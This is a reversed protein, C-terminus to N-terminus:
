KLDGGYESNLKKIIRKRGKKLVIAVIVAILLTLAIGAAGCYFLLAGLTWEAVLQEM